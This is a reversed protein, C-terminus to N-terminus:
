SFCFTIKYFLIVLILVCMLCPRIAAVRYESWEEERHIPAEELWM